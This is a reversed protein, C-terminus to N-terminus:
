KKHRYGHARKHSSMWLHTFKYRAFAAIFLSGSVTISILLLTLLKEESIEGNQVRQNIMFFCLVAMFLCGVAGILAPWAPHHKYVPTTM